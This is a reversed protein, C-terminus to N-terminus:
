FAAIVAVLLTVLDAPEVIVTEALRFLINECIRDLEAFVLVSFVGVTALVLIALALLSLM